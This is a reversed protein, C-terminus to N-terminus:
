CCAPSPTRSDHLLERLAAVYYQGLDSVSPWEYHAELCARLEAETDTWSEVLDRDYRVEAPRVEYASAVQEVSAPPLASPWDPESAPVPAALTPGHRPNTSSNELSPM